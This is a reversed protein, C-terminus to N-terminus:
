FSNRSDEMGSLRRFTYDPSRPANKVQGFDDVRNAVDLSVVIVKISSHEESLRYLLM